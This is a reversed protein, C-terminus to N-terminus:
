RPFDITNTSFPKPPNLSHCTDFDLENRSFRYLAAFTQLGLLPFRHLRAALKCLLIHNLSSRDPALANRAELLDKKVAVQLNLPSGANCATLCVMRRGRQDM